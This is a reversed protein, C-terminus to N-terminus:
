PVLWAITEVALSDTVLQATLDNANAIYVVSPNAALALVQFDPSWSQEYNQPDGPLGNVEETLYPVEAGGPSYAKLGGESFVHFQGFRPSWEVRVAEPTIFIPESSEPPVIHLGARIGGAEDPQAIFALAHTTQDFAASSFCGPALYRGSGDDLNYLRLNADGCIVSWGHMIFVNSAIWGLVKVDGGDPKTLTKLPSGDAPVAWMGTLGYGAGTGFSSVGAHVITRSDPSWSLGYAQSPGDTLRLIEGTAVTYLYVDSSPGDLASIFALKTGDPSWAVSPYDAIARMAEFADDGFNDGTFPIVDPPFLPTIVEVTGEPLTLLNLKLGQYTTLDDATVFAVHHGDPSLMTQAARPSVIEQTVFQTLGTGDANAAWIGNTM